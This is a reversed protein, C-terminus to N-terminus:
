VYLEWNEGFIEKIKELPVGVWEGWEYDCMACRLHIHPMDSDQHEFLILNKYKNGCKRPFERPCVYHKQAVVPM